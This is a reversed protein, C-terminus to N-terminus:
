NLRIRPDLITYLIDAVLQAIVFVTSLIITFGMIVPYDRNFISQIAFDGVGPIGLLRETIFSTTLIGAFSMALITVIPILANRAVHRFDVTWPKLGKSHATRIFDQGLVDLTSARMLRVFGAVGPLGMTIAPVIIRLDFIGVWGSCPVLSAKLCMAWLVVPISVMVPVSMLVLSTTVVFPDVWTGQRHAVLFVLPIGIILSVSIAVINVQFSDWMKSILLSSVSRGRFRLSEGFDGQSINIVYDFYQVVLPRNLGLNERLREAVDPDYRSGMMVQVPDGPGYTGLLFTVATVMLLLVPLWMLRRIVFTLM